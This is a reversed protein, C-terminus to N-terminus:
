VHCCPSDRSSIAALAFSILFFLWNITLFSASLAFSLGSMCTKSSAWSSSSSCSGGQRIHSKYIFQDGLGVNRCFAPVVLMSNRASACCGSAKSSALVYSFVATSCPEGKVHLWPSDSSSSSCCSRTSCILCSCAWRIARIRPFSCTLGKRDSLSGRSM